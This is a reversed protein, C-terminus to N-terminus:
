IAFDRITIEPNENVLSKSMEFDRVGIRVSSHDVTRIRELNSPGSEIPIEGQNKRHFIEQAKDKTQRDDQIVHWCDKTCEEQICAMKMAISEMLSLCISSTLCKWCDGGKANIAISKRPMSKRKDKEEGKSM